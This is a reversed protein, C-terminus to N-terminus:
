MPIKKYLFVFVHRLFILLPFFWRHNVSQSVCDKNFKGTAPLLHKGTCYSCMKTCGIYQSPGISHLHSSYTIDQLLCTLFEFMVAATSSVALHKYSCLNPTFYFPSVHQELSM